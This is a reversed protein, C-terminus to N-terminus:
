GKVAKKGFRRIYFIAGGFAAIVVGAVIIVSANASMIGTIGDRFWNIQASLDLTPFAPMSGGTSGLLFYNM